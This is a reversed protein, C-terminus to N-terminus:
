GEPTIRLLVRREAVMAREFDDWDPHEGAVQRYLDKLGAMADPMPVIEATGDIQVWAGFFADNLVCLAVRPDRQVNKTKARDSTVSVVVRDADDVGCVIPSTQLRGDRRHTVLV